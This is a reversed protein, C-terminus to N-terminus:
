SSFNLKRAETASCAPKLRVKNSVEFVPNTVGDLGMQSERNFWILPLKREAAMAYRHSDYVTPFKTKRSFREKNFYGGPRPPPPPPSENKKMRLSPGLM